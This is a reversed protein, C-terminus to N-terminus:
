EEVKKQNLFDIGSKTIFYTFSKGDKSGLAICGKEELGKLIRYFTIESEKITNEIEKLERLTMGHYFDIAEKKQLICLILFGLRNIEM